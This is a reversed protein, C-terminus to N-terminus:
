QKISKRFTFQLNYYMISTRFITAKIDLRVKKVSVCSRWQFKWAFLRMLTFHINEKWNRFFISWFNNKIKFQVWENIELYGNIGKLTMEEFNPDNFVNLVEPIAEHLSCM